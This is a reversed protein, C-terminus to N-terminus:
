SFPDKQKDLSTSLEQQVQVIEEQNAQLKNQLARWEERQLVQTWCRWGPGPRDPPPAPPPM